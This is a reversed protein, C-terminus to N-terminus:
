LYCFYFFRCMKFSLLFQTGSFSTLDLDCHENERLQQMGIYGVVDMIVTKSCLDLDQFTELTTQVLSQGSTRPM